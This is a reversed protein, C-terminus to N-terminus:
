DNNMEKVLVTYYKKYGKNSLLKEWGRRYAMVEINSINNKKCFDAAVSPWEKMWEGLKNKKAGVLHIQLHRKNPYIIIQTTCAGIIKQEEEDLFLWLQQRQNKLWEKIDDLGVEELGTELPKKLLPEVSSWVLDVHQPEVQYIIM